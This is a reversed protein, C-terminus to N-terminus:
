FILLFTIQKGCLEGEIRENVIALGYDISWMFKLCHKQNLKTKLARQMCKFAFRYYTAYLSDHHIYIDEMRTYKMYMHISAIVGSQAILYIEM